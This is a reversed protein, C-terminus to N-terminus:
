LKIEKKTPNKKAKQKKNMWETRTEGTYLITTIKREEKKEKSSGCNNPATCYDSQKRVCLRLQIHKMSEVQFIFICSHSFLSFQAKWRTCTVPKSTITHQQYKETTKLGIAWGGARKYTKTTITTTTTFKADVEFNRAEHSIAEKDIIFVFFAGSPHHTNAREITDTM